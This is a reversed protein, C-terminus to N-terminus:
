EPQTDTAADPTPETPPTTAAPVEPAPEDAVVERVWLYRSFSAIIKDGTKFMLRVGDVYDVSDATVSVNEEYTRVNYKPM